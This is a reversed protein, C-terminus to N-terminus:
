FLQNISLTFYNYNVNNQIALQKTIYLSIKAIIKEFNNINRFM